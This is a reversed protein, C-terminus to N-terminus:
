AGREDDWGVVEVGEGVVLSPVRADPWTAHKALQVTYADASPSYGTVIFHVREGSAHWILVHMGERLRM